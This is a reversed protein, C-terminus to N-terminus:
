GPRINISDPVDVPYSEIFDLWKNVTDPEVDRICRWVASNCKFGSGFAIQLVRDGKKIRRKAELYSLAYWISSSSTNGFRHLTMKSPEIDEKTLNLNMEMAQIVARGGTHICFHEFATKFNPTYFSSAKFIKLKKCLINQIVYQLQELYPLVLPGLSVLNMKLVDGAVSIVDKTIKVGQKEEYDIDQYICRYARDDKAKNTRVVHLLEYKANGRDHDNSSMLVAAAGMRFLCNTLLMSRDKGIYWHTNLAETSVILALSGRHVKLLDNALGVSLVGAACGMGSLNFSKINSRMHFKNIVMASLSPTPAHLSCNTILVDISRPNLKNKKLLDEVSTFLTTMAEIQVSSLSKKLPIETLSPPISTQNSLWSRELVRAQFDISEQDINDDLYITELLTSMPIRNSDPARYCTFDLLYVKARRRIRQYILHLVLLVAFIEFISGGSSLLTKLESMTLSIPSVRQITQNM